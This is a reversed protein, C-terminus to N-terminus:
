WDALNTTQKTPTNNITLKYKTTTTQEIATQKTPKTNTLDGHSITGGACVLFGKSYYWTHEEGKTYLQLILSKYLCLSSQLVVKYCWRCAWIGWISTCCWYNITTNPGVGKVPCSVSDRVGKRITGNASVGYRDRIKVTASVGSWTVIIPVGEYTFSSIPHTVCIISMYKISVARLLVM